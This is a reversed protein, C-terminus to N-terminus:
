RDKAEALMARLRPSKVTDKVQTLRLGYDNPTKALENLSLGAKLKLPTDFRRWADKVVHQPRKFRRNTTVVRPWLRELARAMKLRGDGRYLADTNGGKVTMTGCKHVSFVNVLVTCWGDALVQLCIDTDDNYISRWRHPIANLVLTCSYVHVNRFFPPIVRPGARLFFEYNLGAIAVNEYRDVFDETAALAPGADCRIRKQKWLRMAYSINDDLQWHRAHGEATAHEKIWNRAGILKMDSRPLVLIREMGFRKAYEPVEQPEVVLRFPVKDEILFQATYCVEYRGKSPVYVPYRPLIVRSIRGQFAGVFHRRKRATAVV